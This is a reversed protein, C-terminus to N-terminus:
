AHLNSQETASVLRQRMVSVRLTLSPSLVTRGRERKPNTLAVVLLQHEILETQSNRMPLIRIPTGRRLLRHPLPTALQQDEVVAKLMPPQMAIQIDHQDVGQVRPTVSMTQRTPQQALRHTRN